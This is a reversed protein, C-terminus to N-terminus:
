QQPREESFAHTARRYTQTVVALRQPLWLDDRESLSLEGGRRLLWIAEFQFHLVADGAVRGLLGSTM